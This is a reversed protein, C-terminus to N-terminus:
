EDEESLKAEIARLIEDACINLANSRARSALVGFEEEEDRAKWYDAADRIKEASRLVAELAEALRDAGSSAEDAIDELPEIDLDVSSGYWDDVRAQIRAIHERADTM